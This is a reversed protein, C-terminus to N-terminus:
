FNRKLHEGEDDLNEGTAFFTEPDRLTIIKFGKDLLSTSVVDESENLKRM